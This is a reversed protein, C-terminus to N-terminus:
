RVAGTLLSDLDARRVQKTLRDVLALKVEGRAMVEGGADEVSQDVTFSYPSRDGAATRVALRAVPNWEVPRLYDLRLRVVVAVLRSDRLDVGNALAWQWRGIELLQPYVANNLMGAWDFDNPRLDVECVQDKM